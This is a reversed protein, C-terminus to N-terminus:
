IKKHMARYGLQKGWGALEIVVAMRVDDFTVNKDNYVFQYEGLRRDLTCISWAYISYDRSVFYLIESRNLGERVYRTLNAKLDGDELWNKNRISTM